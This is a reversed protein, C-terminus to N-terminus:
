HTFLEPSMLVMSVMSRLRQQNYHRKLDSIAYADTDTIVYAADGNQAMFAILAARRTREPLFGLARQCWFDVLKTATWQAAPLEARTIALIPCIPAPTAAGDNAESLWNQIKWTMALSNSGSWATAVDPYGNPAPWEFPSHGTFSLRYMLDNSRNDDVRPTWTSGLARLTAYVAESPRRIKQGWIGKAEDSLLIHLMVFRMQNADQRYQRFVATASDVLGPPPDDSIFRRVLKKCIYKAVRPHGAIRDFVDQGDKLAAQEPQIFKGLVFKAGSDHDSARYLFTGDGGTATNVTWGTFCAATEYVDIDTYGIPYSTDEPCPPVDDPDVFGLYNEAGFSHLELLERAYNENPGSRRNSRNDLYYMMATSKAVAEILTRFNGFAHQRLVYLNYHPLVPGVDYDTGMVNFHDHWFTVLQERLQAKGHLARLVTSRQVEWAPRMRINYEPNSAVHDAWLQPLSKNLTTYGAAAIRSEIATDNLQEWYVQQNVFANYRQADTSGLAQFEALATPTLGYTLRGIARVAFPPFVGQGQHTQPVPPADPQPGHLRRTTAGTPDPLTGPARKSADYGYRKAWVDSMLARAPTRFATKM